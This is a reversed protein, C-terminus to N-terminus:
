RRGAARRLCAGGLRRRRAPHLDPGGGAPAPPRRGPAPVACTSAPWCSRAPRTWPNTPRRTCNWPPRSSARPPTGTQWCHVAGPPSPTWKQANTAAAREHFRTLPEAAQAPESARAAAEVLDPVAGMVIGTFGTPLCMMAELHGLAQTSRGAVLDLLGLAHRGWAAVDPLDRATAEALAHEALQRAQDNRGRHAALLALLSQHRCATNPQSTEVALRYGEEADAEAIGLRGAALNDSV